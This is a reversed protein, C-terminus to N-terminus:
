CDLQSAGHHWISLLLCGGRLIACILFHDLDLIQVEPASNKVFHFVGYCGLNEFLCRKERFVLKKIKKM